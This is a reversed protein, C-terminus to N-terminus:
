RTGVGLTERLKTLQDEYSQVIVKVTETDFVVSVPRDLFFGNTAQVLSATKVGFERELQKGQMMTPTVVVTNPSHQGAAATSHGVGRALDTLIWDYM